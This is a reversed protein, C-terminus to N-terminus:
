DREDLDQLREGDELGGGAVLAHGVLRGLGGQPLEPQHLLAKPVVLSFAM